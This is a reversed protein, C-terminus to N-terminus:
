LRSMPEIRGTFTLLGTVILITKVIGDRGAAPDPSHMTEARHM